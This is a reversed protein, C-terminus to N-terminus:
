DGDGPKSPGFRGRYASHMLTKAGEVEGAEAAAGEEPAAEGEDEAEPVVELSTIQIRISEDERHESANKSVQTVKGVATIRCEDGIDLADSLGLKDLEDKDIYISLGTPYDPPSIEPSMEEQQDKKSLRLDVLAM